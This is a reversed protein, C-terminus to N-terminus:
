YVSEELHERQMREAISLVFTKLYDLAEQTKLSKRLKNENGLTHNLHSITLLFHHSDSNPILTNHVLMDSCNHKFQEKIVKQGYNMAPELM